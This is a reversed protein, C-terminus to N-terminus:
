LGLDVNFIDSFEQGSAGVRELSPNALYVRDGRDTLTFNELRYRLTRVVAWPILLGASLAIAALNGLYLRMMKRAELTSAFTLGPAHIGNWLLNLTRARVYAYVLAYAAYALIVPVLYVAWEIGQPLQLRTTAYGMLTGIPAMLLGMMLGALVYVKFFDRVRLECSFRSLGLAHHAAVFAKSRAAFWPYGLAAAPLVVVALLAAHWHLHFVGAFAIALAFALAVPVGLFIPVAERPTAVFDFRIGRYASNRANFALTRVVLWPLILVFVAIFVPRSAPYLETAFAYILFLLVAVIRGKLITKPSGFYDFTDGDIRTNGYFYRKKRVKAWASYIGLTILTFFLNVIWIRFYEATSGTFEPHLVRELVASTGAGANALPSASGAGAQNGNM